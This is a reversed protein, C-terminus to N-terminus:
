TRSAHLDQSRRGKRAGAMRQDISVPLHIGLAVAVAYAEEMMARVVPRVDPDTAIEVM